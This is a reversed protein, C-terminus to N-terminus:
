WFNKAIHGKKGCAYHSRMEKLKKNGNAQGLDMPAQKGAGRTTVLANEPRFPLSRIEVFNFFLNKKKKKPMSLYVLM